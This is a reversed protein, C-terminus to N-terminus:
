KRNDEGRLISLYSKYRSNAIEGSEVAKIVACQPEKEHLCTNFKCEGILARMETFYHSLENKEIEVLGFEKIGPTDILFTNNELHFMEAFTTTHVGKNAFNSIPMTKQKLDPFICNMLTSKGVGSHGSFLIKKNKLYAKLQETEINQEASIAFVKYGLQEYLKKFEVLKQHDKEKFLDIKNVIITTPIRFSEAAVLFRDIFGYSTEPFSFTVILFLEDINAAIIHYHNAKHVSNRIIYNERDYIKEIIVQESDNNEFEFGVYDGVAIPNSLKIDDIKFKGKLRGKLIKEEFYIDYWSGVSKLILGKKM